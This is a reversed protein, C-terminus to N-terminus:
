IPRGIHENYEIDTLEDCSRLNYRRMKSHLKSHCKACVSILNNEDLLLQWREADNTGRLFPIKHHVHEAVRIVDHDMCIKCLPNNMYYTSRLSHWACSNYYEASQNDHKYTTQTPRIQKRNIIPM